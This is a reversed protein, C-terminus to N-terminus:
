NMEVKGTENLFPVKSPKQMDTCECVHKSTMCELSTRLYPTWFHRDSLVAWGEFSVGRPWHALFLCGTDLRRIATRLFDFTPLNYGYSQWARGALEGCVNEGSGSDM